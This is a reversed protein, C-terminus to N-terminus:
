EFMRVPPSCNIVVLTKNRSQPPGCIKNINKCTVASNVHCRIIHTDYTPAGLVSQANNSRKIIYSPVRARHM